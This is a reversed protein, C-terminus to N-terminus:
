AATELAALVDSPVRWVRQYGRCPVPAALPRPNGLLACHRGASFDGLHLELEVDRAQQRLLHRGKDVLFAAAYCYLVEALGVFAGRPLDGLRAVGLNVGRNQLWSFALEGDETLRKGAHIAIPGRLLLPWDRTEFRKIGLALLTAWPQHVTIARLVM